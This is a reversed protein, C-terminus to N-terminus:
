QYVITCSIPYYYTTPPPSPYIAQVNLTNWTGSFWSTAATGFWNKSITDSAGTMYIPSSSATVSGSGDINSLWVFIPITPAAQFTITATNLQATTCTGFSISQSLTFYVSDTPPIPYNCVAYSMIVCPTPATIVALKTNINSKSLSMVRDTLPHTKSVPMADALALNHVSIVWVLSWFVSWFFTTSHASM